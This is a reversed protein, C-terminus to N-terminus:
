LTDVFNENNVKGPFTFLFYKSLGKQLNQVDAASIERARRSQRIPVGAESIGPLPAESM